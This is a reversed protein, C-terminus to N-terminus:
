QWGVVGDDRAENLDLSTEGIQYQNVWTTRSFLGTFPHVLPQDRQQRVYILM